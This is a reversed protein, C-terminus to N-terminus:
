WDCFVLGASHPCPLYCYPQLSAVEMTLLMRQTGSGEWIGAKSSQCLRHRRAQGLITASTGLTRSGRCPRCLPCWSKQTDEWFGRSISDQIESALVPDCPWKQALLKAPTTILQSLSPASPHGSSAPCTDKAAKRGLDLDGSGETDCGLGGFVSSVRQPRWGGPVWNHAEAGSNEIALWLWQM